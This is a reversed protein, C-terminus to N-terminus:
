WILGGGEWDKKNFFVILDHKKISHLFIKVFLFFFPLTTQRSPSLFDRHFHFDPKIVGSLLPTKACQRAVTSGSVHHDKSFCANGATSVWDALLCRLIKRCSNGM